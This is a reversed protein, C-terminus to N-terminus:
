LFSWGYYQEELIAMETAAYKDTTIVRSMQNHPSCLAKRLFKKAAKKDRTM